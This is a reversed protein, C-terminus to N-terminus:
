IGEWMLMEEIKEKSLMVEASGTILHRGAIWIVTEVRGRLPLLHHSVLLIPVLGPGLYNDKLVLTKLNSCPVRPLLETLDDLEGEVTLGVIWRLSAPPQSALIALGEARTNLHLFGREMRWGDIHGQLPGLWAEEDRKRAREMQKRLAEWDVSAGSPSGGSM